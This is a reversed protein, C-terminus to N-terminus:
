RSSGEGIQPLARLPSLAKWSLRNRLLVATRDGAAHSRKRTGCVLSRARRDLRSLPSPSARMDREVSLELRDTAPDRRALEHEVVERSGEAPDTKTFDKTM